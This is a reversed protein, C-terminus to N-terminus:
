KRSWMDAAKVKEIRNQEKRPLASLFNLGTVSEIERVSVIYSPLFKTNIPQNPLLFAIAEKRQPDYIVKFLKDPVGVNNKGIVLNAEDNDYVPGSIIIIEGRVIAWDRVQAELNAWIQQNNPGNQPIMNSLLFSEDMAKASWNFNANAAMHGRDYGSGKYDALEARQGVPLELDARFNDKRPLKALAKEKTLREAVWIPTKYDADHSLLYGTRCLLTGDNSPVGYEVYEACDELPGTAAPTSLVAVFILTLLKKM